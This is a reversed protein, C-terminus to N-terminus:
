SCALSLRCRGSRRWFPCPPAPPIPPQLRVPEYAGCGRSLAAWCTHLPPPLAPTSPPPSL